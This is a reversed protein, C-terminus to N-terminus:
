IWSVVTYRHKPSANPSARDRARAENVCNIIIRRSKRTPDAANDRASSSLLAIKRPSRVIEGPLQGSPCVSDLTRAVRTLTHRCESVGAWRARMVCAARTILISRACRSRKRIRRQIFAPKRRECSDITLVKNRFYGPFQRDPRTLCRSRSRSIVHARLLVHRYM